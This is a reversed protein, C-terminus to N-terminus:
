SATKLSRVRTKKTPVTATREARIRALLKEAPEDSADQEALKGEFAWKLVSQRLRQIRVAEQSASARIAKQISEIRDV